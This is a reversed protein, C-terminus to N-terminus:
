RHTWWAAAGATGATVLTVLWAPIRQLTLHLGGFRLEFQPPQKRTENRKM